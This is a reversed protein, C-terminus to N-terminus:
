LALTPRSSAPPPSASFSFPDKPLMSSSPPGRGRQEGKVSSSLRLLLLLLLWPGYLVLPSPLSLTLLRPRPPHGRPRGRRRPLRPVPRVDHRRAKQVHEVALRRHHHHRPLGHATLHRHLSARQGLHRRRNEPRAHRPVLAAPARRRRRLHQLRHVVLRGHRGQGAQRRGRLVPSGSRVHRRGPLRPGHPVLSHRVPHRRGRHGLGHRVVTRRDLRHVHRLHRLVM